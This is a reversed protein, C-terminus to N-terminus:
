RRYQYLKYLDPHTSVYRALSSYSKNLEKCIEDYTKGELLLQKLKELDYPSTKKRKYTRLNSSVAIRSVTSPSIDLEKAIDKQPKGEKLLEVVQNNKSVVEKRWDWTVIPKERWDYCSVDPEEEEKPSDVWLCVLDDDSEKEETYYGTPLINYVRGGEIAVNYNGDNSVGFVYAKEGNRTRYFKGVEIDVTKIPLEFYWDIGDNMSLQYNIIENDNSSTACIIGRIMEVKAGGNCTLIDGSILRELVENREMDKIYKKM